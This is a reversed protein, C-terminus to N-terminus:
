LCPVPAPAPTAFHGKFYSQLSRTSRSTEGRAITARHPIDKAHVLAGYGVNTGPGAVMSALRARDTGFWSMMATRAPGALDSLSRLLGSISGAAPPRKHPM